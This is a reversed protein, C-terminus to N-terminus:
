DVSDNKLITGDATRVITILNEIAVYLLSDNDSKTISSIREMDKQWELELKYQAHLNLSMFLMFTALLVVKFKNTLNFNIM